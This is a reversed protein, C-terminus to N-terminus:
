KSENKKLQGTDILNSDVDTLLYGHEAGTQQWSLELGTTAGGNVEGNETIKLSKPESEGTDDVGGISGGTVLEPAAATKANKTKKNLREEVFPISHHRNTSSVQSQADQDHDSPYLAAFTRSTTLRYPLHHNVLRSKTVFQQEYPDAEGNSGIADIGLQSGFASHGVHYFHDSQKHHEVFYLTSIAAM